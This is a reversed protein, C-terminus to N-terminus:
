LKNLQNLTGKPLVTMICSKQMLIEVNNAVTMAVYQDTIKTVRGLIGGATVIEDGKMVSSLLAQQEKARKSQPRWIAFYVLLFFGVFMLLFSFGGGAQNMPADAAYANSVLFNLLGEMM